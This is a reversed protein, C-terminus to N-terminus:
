GGKAPSGWDVPLKMIKEYEGFEYKNYFYGATHGVVGLKKFWENRLKNYLLTHTPEALTNLNWLSFHVSYNVFDKEFRDYLNWDILQQRLALLANYFCMWSRERTVSLGVGTQKRHHVLVDEELTIMRQAKVVASFVFLMDNTTRQEQFQLQNEEVFSRKFLKDWAWGVYLKFIDKEVDTGAFPRQKPLLNKHISYTCPSYAGTNNDYFDCGFTVIDAGYTLAANYSCELMTPEYFDDADLISLYTGTAYQLGNNRAAGAGANERTIIRIRSDKAAYSELIPLSSDTSGDNVCILEFDTLTQGLLSEISDALFDESDYVPMVISVKM